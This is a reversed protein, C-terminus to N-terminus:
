STAADVLMGTCSPSPCVATCEACAEALMKSREEKNRVVEKFFQKEGKNRKPNIELVRM